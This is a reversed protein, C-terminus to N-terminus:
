VSYITPLTLHTYSVSEARIPQIPDVHILGIPTQFLESESRQNAQSVLASTQATRLPNSLNHQMTAGQEPAGHEEVGTHNMITAGDNPRQAEDAFTVGREQAQETGIQDVATANPNPQTQASQTAIPTTPVPQEETSTDSGSDSDHATPDNVNNHITIDGSITQGTSGQVYEVAQRVIGVATDQSDVVINDDM